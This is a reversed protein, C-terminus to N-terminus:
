SVPAKWNKLGLNKAEQEIERRLDDPQAEFRLLWSSRNLAERIKQLNETGEGELLKALVLWGRAMRPPQEKFRERVRQRQSM